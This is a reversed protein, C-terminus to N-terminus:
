GGRMREWFERCEGCFLVAASEPIPHSGYRHRLMAKTCMSGTQKHGIVRAM